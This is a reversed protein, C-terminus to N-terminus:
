RSYVKYLESFSQGIKERSFHEIAYERIDTASYNSHTDLMELLASQLAKEDQKSVLIGRKQNVIEPIGGVSTAIVPKGCSFAELLM